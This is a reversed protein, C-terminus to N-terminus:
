RHTYGAMSSISRTTAKVADTCSYAGGARLIKLKSPKHRALTAAATRSM